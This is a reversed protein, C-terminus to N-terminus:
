LGSEIFALIMGWRGPLLPLPLPLQCVEGGESARLGRETSPSPSVRLTPTLYGGPAFSSALVPAFNLLVRVFNRMKLPPYRRSAYIARNFFIEAGFSAAGGIAGSRAPSPAPNLVPASVPRYPLQMLMVASYLGAASPQREGPARFSGDATLWSRHAM